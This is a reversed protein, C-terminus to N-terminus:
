YTVVEQRQMQMAHDGDRRCKAAAIRKADPTEAFLRRVLRFEHLPEKVADFLVCGIEDGPVAAAEIQRDQM